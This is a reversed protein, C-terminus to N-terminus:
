VKRAMIWASAAPGPSWSKHRLEIIGKFNMGQSHYIGSWVGVDMKGREVPFYSQFIQINQTKDRKIMWFGYDYLFIM